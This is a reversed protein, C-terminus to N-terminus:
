DGSTNKNLLKLMDKHCITWTYNEDGRGNKKWILVIPMNHIPHEKPFKEGIKEKINNYIKSFNPQRNEYGAKAQVLFPVNVIDIGCDDMLRSEERSTRAHEYGLERFIRALERELDHGKRRNRKGSM